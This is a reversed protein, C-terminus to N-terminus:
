FGIKKNYIQVCKAKQILGRKESPQFLLSFLTTILQDFTIVKIDEDTM